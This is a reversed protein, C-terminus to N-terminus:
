EKPPHETEFWEILVSAICGVAEAIDILAAAQAQKVLLERDEYDWSSNDSGSFAAKATDLYNMREMNNVERRALNHQESM